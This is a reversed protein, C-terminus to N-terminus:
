EEEKYYKEYNRIRYEHDQLMDGHACLTDNMAKHFETNNKDNNKLTLDLTTLTGNLKILPRVIIGLFVLLATGCVVFIEWSVSIIQGM